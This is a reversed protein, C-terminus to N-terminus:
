NNQRNLQVEAALQDQRYAVMALEVARDLIERHLEEDLKCETQSDVGDISLHESTSIGGLDQLVIPTPYKIYRIHYTDIPELTVLEVVKESNASQMDLRYGTDNNLRRFPNRKNQNYEDYKTPVIEIQLDPCGDKIIIGKEYKILFVDQPLVALKSYEELGNTMAIPKVKYDVVLEKLDARRKDSGEFSDRYKNLPGNYQKVLELQAKTLFVSKEYGDLAPASNSAISNYLIDFENNFETVNM